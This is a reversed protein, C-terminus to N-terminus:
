FTDLGLRGKLRSVCHCLELSRESDPSKGVILWSARKGPLPGVAKFVKEIPEPSGFEMLLIGILPNSHRGGITPNSPQFLPNIQLLISVFFGDVVV